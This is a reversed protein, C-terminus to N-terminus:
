WKKAYRIRRTLAEQLHDFATALNSLDRDYLQGTDLQRVLTELADAWGPGKIQRAVEVVEPVVRKEVVTVTREITRDVVEIAARGSAAARAQEWARHRCGSSCWKPIRGRPQLTILAGCWGCALRQGPARRSPTVDGPEGDRKPADNMMPGRSAAHADTPQRLAAITVHGEAM